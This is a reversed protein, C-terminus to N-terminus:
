VVSARTQYSQSPSVFLVRVKITPSPTFPTTVVDSNQSQQEAPDVDFTANETATPMDRFVYGWHCVSLQIKKKKVGLGGSFPVYITHFAM